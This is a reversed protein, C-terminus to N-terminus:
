HVKTSSTNQLHKNPGLDKIEINQVDLLCVVMVFYLCIIGTGGFSGIGNLYVWIIGIANKKSGPIEESSKKGGFLEVKVLTM